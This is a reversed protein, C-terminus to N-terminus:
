KTENILQIVEERTKDLKNEVRTLLENEKGKEFKLDATTLQSFQTQLQSCQDEWNGTIKFEPQNSNAPTTEKEKNM